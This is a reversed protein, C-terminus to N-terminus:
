PQGVLKLANGFYLKDRVESPLELTQLFDDLESGYYDRGFLLRDAHAGLFRRANDPSRKLARLGSGASLDAWLNPFLDFLEELRGGPVIPGSPYVEPSDSADGSIERWFGPAHGIFLTDPCQQLVRELNDVTGGYWAPQYTRRGSEVDALFPVDLHLVVPCGLDGAKRFLELCRPDDILMRLKWEGCIRIQHMHYANEFVAAAGDVRPDPCYGCVFRGPFRERAALVDALPLGPHTGDNAFHAPNLVHRFNRVGEDQPVDWTLLWAFDIGGDDMDAVLGADDRGHWCAHQHSDVKV